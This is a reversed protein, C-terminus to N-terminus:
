PALKLVGSSLVRRVPPPMRTTFLLFRINLSRAFGLIRRASMFRRFFGRTRRATKLCISRRIRRLYTRPRAESSSRALRQRCKRTASGTWCCGSSTRPPGAHPVVRLSAAAPAPCRGGRASRQPCALKSCRIRQIPSGSFNRVPTWYTRAPFVVSPIILM